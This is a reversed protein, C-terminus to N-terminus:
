VEIRSDTQTFSTEFDSRFHDVFASTQNFKWLARGRPLTALAGGEEDTLGFAAVTQALVKPHTRFVVKVEADAVLGEAIKSAATGSDAQAGPDSVRHFVLVNSVGWKRSLKMSEQFFRAADEDGLIAWGEDVVSLRRPITAEDGDAGVAYVSHLSSIAALMVLSLALKNNFVDHVDLILGKGSSDWFDSLSQEGDFMGVLDRTVMRDVDVWVTRAEEQLEHVSRRARAATEASPDSLEKALDILTASRAGEKDTLTELAWGVIANETENLRRGKISTLLAVILQIRRGLLEGKTEAGRTARAIPNIRHEGGPRLRLISIGLAEALASYERKPDIAFVQRGAGHQGLLGVNRAMLTKVFSSKGSGVEGLVIMNPNSIVKDSYLTFPDFYWGSGSLTNLGMCIGRVGLGDDVQFPYISAVQATTGRHFPLRLVKAPASPIAPTRRTRQNLTGRRKTESLSM